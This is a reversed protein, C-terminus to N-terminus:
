RWGLNSVQVSAHHGPTLLEGSHSLGIELPRGSGVEQLRSLARVRDAIWGILSGDVGEM